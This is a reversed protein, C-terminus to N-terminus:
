KENIFVAEGISSVESAAPAPSGFEGSRAWYVSLQGSHMLAELTDAIRKLSGDKLAEALRDREGQGASSKWDYAIGPAVWTQGDEAKEALLYARVRSGGVEADVRPLRVGRVGRVHLKRLVTTADDQHRPIREALAKEAIVRRYSKVAATAAAAGLGLLVSILWVRAVDNIGYGRLYNRGGLVPFAFVWLLSLSVVLVLFQPDKPKAALGATGGLRQYLMGFAVVMLFGPLLLFSPVAMFQLIVSEGLVGAEIERSVVIRDPAPGDTHSGRAVTTFLLTHKGPRVWAAAHIEVRIVETSRPAIERAAAGGSEIFSPGDVVVTDITVPFASTNRFVLHVSGTDADTLAALSTLISISLAEAATAPARSALPINAHAIRRTADDATYWVRLYAKEGARRVRGTVVISGGMAAGAPIAAFQSDAVAVFISDSTLWELRVDTVTGGQNGLTFYARAQHGSAVLVTDPQLTITLQATLAPAQGLLVVAIAGYRLLGVPHHSTGTDCQRMDCMGSKHHFVAIQLRIGAFRRLDQDTSVSKM